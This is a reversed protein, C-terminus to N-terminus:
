PLYVPEDQVPEVPQGELAVIAPLFGYTISGGYVQAPDDHQLDSYTPLGPVVIDHMINALKAWPAEGGDVNFPIMEDNVSPKSYSNLTGYWTLHTPLTTQVGNVLFEVTTNPNGARPYPLEDNRANRAHCVIVRNPDDQPLWYRDYEFSEETIQYGLTAQIRVQTHPYLNRKRYIEQDVNFQIVTHAVVNFSISCSSIYCSIPITRGDPRIRLELGSVTVPERYIPLLATFGRAYDTINNGTTDVADVRDFRVTQLSPNGFSDFVVQQFTQTAITTLAANKIALKAKEHEELDPRIRFRANRLDVELQDFRTRASNGTTTNYFPFAPCPQPVGFVDQLGYSAGCNLECGTRARAGVLANSTAPTKVWSDCVAAGQPGISCDSYGTRIFLTQFMDGQILQYAAIEIPNLRDASCRCFYTSDPIPRQSGLYLFCSAYHWKMPTYAQEGGGCRSPSGGVARSPTNGLYNFECADVTLCETRADDNHVPALLWYTDPLVRRPNQSELDHLLGNADRNNRFLNTDSLRTYRWLFRHGDNRPFNSYQWASPTDDLGACGLGCVSAGGPTRFYDAGQQGIPGPSGADMCFYRAATWFWGTDDACKNQDCFGGAVILWQIANAIDRAWSM